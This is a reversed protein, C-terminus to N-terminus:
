CCSSERSRAGHRTTALPHRQACSRARPLQRGQHARAVADRRERLVRHVEDLVALLYPIPTDRRPSHRLDAGLGDPLERLLTLPDTHEIRFSMRAGGRHRAPTSDPTPPPSSSARAAAGATTRRQRGNPDGHWRRSAPPTTSPRCAAAGDGAAGPHRRDGALLDKTLRDRQIFVTWLFAAQLAFALLWGLNSTADALAQCVALMVALILSYIVKRALYGALKALWARFFDHGRGPFIGILLAVPAFALLLLLLIQALIVGLALAGLLLFAGLEGLLIM